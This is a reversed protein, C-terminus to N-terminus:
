YNSKRLKKYLNIHEIISYFMKKLFKPIGLFHMLTVWSYFFHKYFSDERASRLTNIICWMLLKRLARSSLKKCSNKENKPWMLANKNPIGFNKFIYYLRLRFLRHWETSWLKVSHCLSKLCLKKKFRDLLKLIFVKENRKIINTYFYRLILISTLRQMSPM